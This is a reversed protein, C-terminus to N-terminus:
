ASRMVTSTYSSKPVPRWRSAERIRWARPLAWSSSSTAPRAPPIPKMYKTKSYAPRVGIAVITAWDWGSGQTCTARPRRPTGYSAVRAIFGRQPRTRAASSSPCGAKQTTSREESGQCSGSGSASIVPASGYVTTMAPYSPSSRNISSPASVGCRISRSSNPAAQVAWRLPRWWSITGVPGGSPSGSTSPAIAAVTVWRVPGTSPFWNSTLKPKVPMSFNAACNRSVVVFVPQSRRNPAEGLGERRAGGPEVGAQLLLPGRRAGGAREVRVEEAEDAPRLRRFEEPLGGPVPGGEGVERPGAVRVGVGVPAPGQEVGARLM